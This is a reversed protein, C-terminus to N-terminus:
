WYSGMCSPFQRTKRISDGLPSHTALQCRNPFMFLFIRRVEYNWAKRVRTCKESRVSPVSSGELTTPM